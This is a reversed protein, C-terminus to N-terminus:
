SLLHRVRSRYLVRSFSAPMLRFIFRLVPYVPLVRNELCGRFFVRLENFSKKYGRRAYAGDMRVGVCYAPLNAMVVKCRLAKFWYAIDENLAYEVPYLGVRHFFRRRFCVTVHAFPSSKFIKSRIDGDNEPYNKKFVVNDLGGVFEVIGGGLIDVDPNSMMFDYQDKFRNSLNIDDSDMRYVLWEDELSAILKNLGAALGVNSSSRLIKYFKFRDIAANLDPKLAGDVHLYIHVPEGEVDTPISSVAQEFHSVQDNFYVSIIVAVSM